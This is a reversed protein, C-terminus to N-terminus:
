IAFPITEQGEELKEFYKLLTFRLTVYSILSVKIM